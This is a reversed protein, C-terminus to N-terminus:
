RGPEAENTPPTFTPPWATGGAAVARVAELLHAPQGKLIYGVAGARAAMAPGGGTVVSVSLIIVRLDPHRSMLQRTAEFGSQVPTDVDMVIVDPELADAVQVVEAGDACQGVLEVGEASKLLEAVGARVFPHDDAVLVRIM